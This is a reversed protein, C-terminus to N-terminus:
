SLSVQPFVIVDHLHYLEPHDVAEVKRIDGPHFCPNKSVICTGKVVGYHPNGYSGSLNVFIEDEELVGYEDMVGVLCASKEVYIKSKTELEKIARHRFCYLLQQLFPEQTSIGNKLCTCIYSKLHSHSLSVLAHAERPDNDLANIRKLMNRQYTLFVDDHIGLASLITIFQRNLYGMNRKAEQVIELNRQLSPFKLQSKRLVLHHNTMTPDVSLVGKFGAFRIQFASPCNETTKRITHIKDAFERSIKGIGDSFIYKGASIDEIM